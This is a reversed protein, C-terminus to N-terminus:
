IAADLFAAEAPFASGLAQLAIRDGLVDRVLHDLAANSRGSSVGKREIEAM